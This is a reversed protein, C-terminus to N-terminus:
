PAHRKGPLLRASLLLGVVALAALPQFASSYTGFWDRLQGTILTGMLAGVGYATFVLGYIEAYRHPPFCRLTTAPAIALWGGLASWFFCFSLLYLAVDGQRARLMLLSGCLILAFALMGARAPNWRDCLSGFLPRSLGNFVAFLSVSAAAMAPSIGILEIGVPSAIGIASLGALTALAYTLWLGTFARRRGGSPETAAGGATTAPEASAAPPAPRLLRAALLLIAGFALGFLRLTPRTGFAEILRQALPATILPSLGFGTVTLGVALGKREPFWSAVVALPVGYVLGVGLGAVVGYALVLEQISGAVSALLYGLGVVVAGTTAVARGHGASIWRGAMPMMGAYCVLSVTFPLLSATASLSLERELTTRFISWAYVTGLCLMATIGLPIM